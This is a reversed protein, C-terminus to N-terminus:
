SDTDIAFVLFPPNLEDLSFVKRWGPPTKKLRLVQGEMDVWGRFSPRRNRMTSYDIVVYSIKQDTIVEQLEEMSGVWPVPVIRGDLKSTWFYSYAHSPGLMCKKEGTVNERLWSLLEHYGSPITYCRAPNKRFNPRTMAFAVNGLTLLVVLGIIIQQPAAKLKTREQTLVRELGMACGRSALGLLMPLLPVLFRIDKAPYWSFFVFFLAFTAAAPLAAARERNSVVAAAAAVLVALGIPWAKLGLRENLLYTQGSAVVAYIAEQFSGHLIRGTIQRLSHKRLYSLFTPERVSPDPSYLEDTSHAWIFSRNTNYFPEGYCRINRVLIPSSVLIFILVGLWVQKSRLFRRRERYIFAGLAIPVLLLGTGKTMYALGIFLGILSGGRGHKLYRVISLWALTIWITVLPECAVISSYTLYATNCALLAAALLAVGTDFVRRAAVFTVVIGAGGIFLTLLKALGLVRLTEAPLVSLMAIYLPMRNAELYTGRFCMSLMALPGGQEHIRRANTLYAGTDYPSLADGEHLKDLGALTYAALILILICFVVLPSLRSTPVREMSRKARACM